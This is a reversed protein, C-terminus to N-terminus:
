VVGLDPVRHRDGGGRPLARPAPTGRAPPLDGRARLVLLLARRLRAGGLRLVGGAGHAPPHTPRLPQPPRRVAARPAERAHPPEPDSALPLPLVGSTFPVRADAPRM